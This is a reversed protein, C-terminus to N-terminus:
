DPNDASPQRSIASPQAGHMAPAGSVARGVLVM